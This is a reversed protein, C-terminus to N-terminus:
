SVPLSKIAMQLAGDFTANGGIFGSSHAFICGPIGAVRSLEEDRSGRWEDKLGVRLVFSKPTVPVSQVRWNSCRSDEFLVFKIADEINLDKEIDFLHEVWPCGGTSLQIIEGSQYLSKRTQIARKVLERAPAWVHMYYDIQERFELEAISLAKAFAEAGDECNRRATINLRNIRTTLDTSIRYKMPSFGIPYGLALADIEIIFSEYVKKFLTYICDEAKSGLLNRLIEKGHNSYVVGAISLPLRPGNGANFSSFSLSSGCSGGFLFNEPDHVEGIEVQADGEQIDDLESSRIVETNVFSPHLKLLMCAVVQQPTFDGSCTLIRNPSKLESMTRVGLVCVRFLCSARRSFRSLIAM